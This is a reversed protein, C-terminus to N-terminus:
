EGNSAPFTLPPVDTTRRSSEKVLPLHEIFALVGDPNRVFYRASTIGFETGVNITVSSPLARFADEDTRDDGMYIADGQDHGTQNLIWNVASGKDWSLAPRLELVRKGETMYLQDRFPAIADDVATRLRDIERVAVLRYHVSASLTKFEVIVGKISRFRSTLKTCLEKILGVRDKAESHLFELGPGAIELGHNGVYTIDSLKVISRLDQIRRGSVIAVRYREDHVLTELAVRTQPKLRTMTPTPTISALTGDLDLFVAIRGRHELQRRVENLCDFLYKPRSHNM